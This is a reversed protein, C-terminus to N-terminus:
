AGLVREALRAGAWVAALGLVISLVVNAGALFWQRDGALALTEKGFTSFTTFGGILGVLLAVRYEERVLVPGMLTTGLFGVALCGSVNVVFTGLPFLPGAPGHIWGTIAYRLVGGLGAGLFVLAFKIM